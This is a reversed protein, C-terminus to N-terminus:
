RLSLARNGRLISELESAAVQRPSRWRGGEIPVSPVSVSAIRGQDDVDVLANALFHGENSTSILLAWHGAAPKKWYVAFVGTQPLRRIDLKMSQRKGNVLGEATGAIDNNVLDGHHYVRVTLYANRTNPDHPNVPSEISIWPPGAFAATAAAISLVAVLALRRLPTHLMHM